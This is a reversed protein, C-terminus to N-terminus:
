STILHKTTVVFVAKTLCSNKYCLTVNVKDYRWTELCSPVKFALKFHCGDLAHIPRAMPFSLPKSKSSTRHSLTSQSKCNWVIANNDVKRDVMYSTKVWFVKRWNSDNQLCESLFTSILMRSLFFFNNQNSKYCFNFGFM